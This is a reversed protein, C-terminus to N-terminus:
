WDTREYTETNIQTVEQAEPVVVPEAMVDPEAAPEASDGGDDADPAEDWAADMSATEAAGDSMAVPVEADPLGPEPTLTTDGVPISFDSSSTVPAGNFATDNVIIEGNIEGEYGPPPSVELANINWGSLDVPGGDTVIAKDGSTVITDPPL